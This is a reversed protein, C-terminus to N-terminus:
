GRWLLVTMATSAIVELTTLEGAATVVTASDWPVGLRNAADSASLFKETRLLEELKSAQVTSASTKSGLGRNEVPGLIRERWGALATRLFELVAASDYGDVNGGEAELYLQRAAYLEATEPATLHLFHLGHHVASRVKPGNVHWSDRPVEELDPTRFVVIKAPRRPGAAPPLVRRALRGWKAHSWGFGFTFDISGRAEQPWRLEVLGEADRAEVCADPGSALPGHLLWRFPDPAFALLKPNGDLRARFEAFIEALPRPPPIEGGDAWRVMCLKLFERPGLTAAPSPLLKALWRSDAFKEEVGPELSWPDLRLHILERAQERNLGELMLGRGFRDHHATDVEPWIRRDWVDKNATVVTFQNRHENVLRAVVFGFMAALRPSSGYDETQDFCFLWPRHFRALACLDHIRNHALTNLGEESEPQMTDVVNLGLAQREDDELAEGRMWALCASAGASGHARTLWATLVRLWASSRLQAQDPQRELEASLIRHDLRATELLWEEVQRWPNRLDWWDDAILADGIAEWNEPRALEGHALASATVARLVRQALLDLQTIGDGDLTTEPQRLENVAQLLLSHWCLSPAQFPQVWVLTARGALAAFLRTILHSKGFGPASSLVLTAPSAVQDQDGPLANSLPLFDAIIRDFIVRNLSDVSPPRERPGAVIHQGFPNVPLQVPPPM